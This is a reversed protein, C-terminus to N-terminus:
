YREVNANCNLAVGGNAICIDIAMTSAEAETYSQGLGYQPCGSPGAPCCTDCYTRYRYMIKKSPAPSAVQAPEIETQAAPKETEDNVPNSKAAEIETQQLPTAPQAESKKDASYFLFILTVIFFAAGGSANLGIGLPKVDKGDLTMSNPLLSAAIVGIGLAILVSILANATGSQPIGADPTLLSFGIIVIFLGVVVGVARGLISNM